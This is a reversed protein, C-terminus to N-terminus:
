TYMCVIDVLCFTPTLPPMDSFLSSAHVYRCQAVISGWPDVVLAHGWRTYTLAFIVYSTRTSGPHSGVQAAALVWCQTDIARARLLTSWHAAGTRVAFASPFTLIDAGQHRLALSVEPFRM